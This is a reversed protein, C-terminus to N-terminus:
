VFKKIFFHYLNKIVKHSEYKKSVDRCLLSLEEYRLPSVTLAKILVRLLANRDGPTFSFCKLDKHIYENAPEIDSCIVPTGCMMAEIPVLGLSERYSPFVLYDIDNYVQSLDSQCKGSFFSIMKNNKALNQADKLASGSGVIILKVDKRSESLNNFCSILDFVGKSKEIRGVFGFVINETDYARKRPFFISCDVGGSPSVYIDDCNIEYKSILVKKFSLSPCVIFKSKSFINKTIKKLFINKFSHEKSLPIEIDSGHVNVVINLDRIFSAFFVGISSHTVFHIYFVDNEKSFLARFFSEVYFVFYFLTKEFINKSSKLYIVDTEGEEFSFGKKINEVFSGKYPAKSSPYLNTIFFVKM